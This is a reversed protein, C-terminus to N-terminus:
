SAIYEVSSADVVIFVEELVECVVCVELSESGEVFGVFLFYFNKFWKM